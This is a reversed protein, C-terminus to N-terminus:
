SLCMSGLITLGTESRKGIQLYIRHSYTCQTNTDTKQAFMKMIVVTVTVYSTFLPPCWRRDCALLVESVAYQVEVSAESFM